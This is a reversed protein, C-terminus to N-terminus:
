HGAELPKHKKFPGALADICLQVLHAEQFTCHNEFM